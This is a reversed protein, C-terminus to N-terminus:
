DQQIGMCERQFDELSQGTLRQFITSYLGSTTDLIDPHVTLAHVFAIDESNEPERNQIGHIRGWNRVFEKDLPSPTERTLVKKKWETLDWYRSSDPTGVEDALTPEGEYGGFEMKTDAMLIGRGEAYAAMQIYIQLGLTSEQPYEQRVAEANLTTDHGVAAKTTPDFQPPLLLSGDYLGPLLPQGHLTGTKKYEKFGSGTLCGRYIFEVPKMDCRKVIIARRQLDSNNQLEVPLYPDIERGYAALHHKTETLIKAMWFITMATLVEGKRHVLANLVFDFISIRDTAVVLLFNSGPIKWTDRVKGQHMRVLGAASLINLLPYEAVLPPLNAGM